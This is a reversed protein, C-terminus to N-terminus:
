RRAPLGAERYHRALLEPQTEALEPFNRELALAIRQHYQRRSGKLLSDYAADRILSHRFSYVAQDADGGQVLIEARVLQALGARLSERDFPAVAEILRWSFERGIVAGVQAIERNPGLRDLRAVLSDHLSAPIALPPSDAAGHQPKLRIVTRTLEEIFLPVGDARAIIQDIMPATLGKGAAIGKVMAAADTSSLRELTLEAVREGLQWPAAFEQRATMLLMVSRYVIRPILADLLELTSADVWHLDEFIMLMPTCASEALVADIVLEIVREDPLGRVELGLWRSVPEAIPHFPTGRYYHICRAEVITTHEAARDKLMAALRSKGIGPEGRLLLAGCEGSRARDWL